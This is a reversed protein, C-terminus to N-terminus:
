RAKIKILAERNARTEAEFKAHIVDAREKYGVAITKLYQVDMYIKFSAGIVILLLTPVVKDTINELLNM